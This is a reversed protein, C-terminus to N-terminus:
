GGGEDKPENRSPSGLGPPTVVEQRHRTPDHFFLFRSRAEQGHCASCANPLRFPRVHMRLAHQEEPTMQPSEARRRLLDLRGHSVHCTRCAVQGHPDERGALNYLPLYGPDSPELINMMIMNPHTTIERVPAPGGSHHCALCPACSFKGELERCREELFRPSLMQGWAGNPEAHMAHCPKCSDTEFGIAALKQPSHGTLEIYKKEEHCKLCLTQAPEDPQVRALQAPTEGGHPNHCTRCGIRQGSAASDPVLFLGGQAAGTIMKPPHVAATRSAANWGAARHCALCAQDPDDGPRDGGYRLLDPRDGGHPRHCTLCTGAMVQSEEPWQGRDATASIDHPGGALRAEEAHCAGCLEADPKTFNRDPRREHPNHCDSCTTKPHAVHDALKTQGVQGAQHCSVCQGGPDGPAPARERPYRHALHCASCAGAAFPTMGASNKESPFNTRLDHPSGFVSAQAPHCLACTEGYKPEFALLSAGRGAGHVRHCSVCLLEQGPGVRNGLSSVVAQQADNLVPSQGHKPLIGEAHAALQNRHCSLCLRNSDAELLLLSDHGAEHTQHCTLCTLENMGPGAKAGANILEQPLPYPMSGIPHTGSRAGGVMEQHCRTCLETAPAELFDGHDADHPNHCELCRVKPHELSTRAHGAALRYKQHCTICRGDPDLPSSAFDRAYRHSLHCASCPGGEAVTQGLRNVEDPHEHRLDHPTNKAYHGPHCHECLRGDTTTEALMYPNGAQQGLKHCSMCILTQGPGVVTGLETVAQRQADNLRVNQPHGQEVDRGTMAPAVSRHCALCYVSGHPDHWDVEEITPPMHATRSLLSGRVVAVASAGAGGVMSLLLVLHIGRGVPRLLNWARRLWEPLGQQTGRGAPGHHDYTKRSM